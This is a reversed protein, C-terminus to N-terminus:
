SLGWKKHMTTSTIEVFSKVIYGRSTDFWKKCDKLKVGPAKGRVRLELRLAQTGDDIKQVTTVSITMQSQIEEIDFSWSLNMAKPAPLIKKGEWEVDNLLNGIKELGQGLEDLPVMNVYSLELMEINPKHIKLSSLTTEFKEYYKYFNKVVVGYRPYENKKKRWNYIFRDRQFQILSDENKHIFWYRPLPLLGNANMLTISAGADRGLKGLTPAEELKPFENKGLSEWLKWLHPAKLANIDDFQVGMAVEVVPPNKFNPLAIPRKKKM